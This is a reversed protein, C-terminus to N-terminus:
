AFREASCSRRGTSSATRPRTPSRRRSSRFRGRPWRPRRRRRPRVACVRAKVFARIRDAAHDIAARTTGAARDDEATVSAAGLLEGSRSTACRPRARHRRHPQIRTRRPAPRALRCRLRRSVWRRRADAGPIRRRTSRERRRSGRRRAKVIAPSSPLGSLATTIRDNSTGSWRRRCANARHLDALPRVEIVRYRRLSASIPVIVHLRTKAGTLKASRVADRCVDAVRMRLQGSRPLVAGAHRRAGTRTRCCRLAHDHAASSARAYYGSPAHVVLTKDRPEIRIRHFSNDPAVDLYYSLATRVASRRGGGPRVPRRPRGVVAGRSLVGPRGDPGGPALARSAGQLERTSLSDEARVGVVYVTVRSITAM